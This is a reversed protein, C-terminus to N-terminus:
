SQEKLLNAVNGSKDFKLIWCPIDTSVATLLDLSRNWWTKTELPRILCALLKQFAAMEDTLPILNCQNSQELFFIAKLPATKSSVDKVDGHSWTGSLLYEEGIKRIINRDDCLITAVSNLMGAMTSKGADSHGVFLFGRDNIVTGLSHMICGGRSGLVRALLIQDTPFMTLSSLNGNIFNEKMKRDNYINLRTHGKDAVVTQRYNRHPPEPRIRQYIRKEGDKWIAWPPRFYLRRSKDFEVPDEGFNFHHHLVINEELPGSTEFTDFKPAFTESNFPLDSQVEISIEATKFYKKNNLNM